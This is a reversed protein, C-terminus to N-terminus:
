GIICLHHKSLASLITVLVNSKTILSNIVLISAFQFWLLNLLLRGLYILQNGEGNCFSDADDPELDM